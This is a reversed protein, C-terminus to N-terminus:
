RGAHRPNLATIRLITAHSIGVKARGDRLKKARAVAAQRRVNPDLWAAAPENMLVAPKKSWLKASHRETIALRRLIKNQRIDDRRCVIFFAISQSGGRINAIGLTAALLHALSRAVNVVDAAREHLPLIQEVRRLEIRLVDLAVARVL